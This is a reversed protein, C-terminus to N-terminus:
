HGGSRLQELAICNIQQLEKLAGILLLVTNTFESEFLPFFSTQSIARYDDVLQQDNAHALDGYMFLDLIERHTMPGEESISLNSQSDLHSNVLDRVEGFQTSLSCEVQLSEYLRAMNCLSTDEINMLFFRLTLAFAQITKEEPGIHFGDWGQGKRWEM